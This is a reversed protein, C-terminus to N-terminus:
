RVRPRAPDSLVMAAPADRAPRVIGLSDAGRRAPPDSAASGGRPPDLHGPGLRPGWGAVPLLAVDVGGALDAMADFLDTDGAFYAAQTGRVVFGIAERCPSFPHRRGDHRPGGAPGRLAGGRGGAGV